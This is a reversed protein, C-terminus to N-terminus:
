SLHEEKSLTFITNIYWIDRKDIVATDHFLPKFLKTFSHIMGHLTLQSPHTMPFLESLIHDGLSLFILGSWYEQWLFGMSVIFLSFSSFHSSSGTGMWAPVYCQTSSRTSYLRDKNNSVKFIVTHAHSGWVGQSNKGGPLWVNM